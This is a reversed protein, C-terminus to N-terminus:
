RKTIKPLMKNAVENGPDRKKRGGPFLTAENSWNVYSHAQLEWYAKFVQEFYNPSM